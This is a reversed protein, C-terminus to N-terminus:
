DKKIVVEDGENLGGLIEISGDMSKVGREIKVDLIEDGAKRRVYYGDDRKEIAFDPISLVNEHRLTEIRLSSSLGSKIRPDATDFSIKVKYNVIGDIITEAPEIVVVKGSLRDGGFADIAIEVKDQLKLKGIDSEPVNAEILLLGDSIVSFASLSPQITQGAVISRKSVVGAFPSVLSYKKLQVNYSQLIAQQSQVKAKQSLVQADIERIKAEKAAIEEVSAGAKSRNLDSSSVDVTAQLSRLSDLKSNISSISASITTRATDVKSKYEAIQTSSLGSSGVIADMVKSLLDRIIYVESRTKELLLIHQDSKLSASDIKAIDSKYSFIRNLAQQALVRGDETDTKIQTNPVTFGLRISTQDNNNLFITDLNNRLVGDAKIGTDDILDATGQMSNRLDAQAKNLNAIKIDIDEQRTGNKLDNLEIIATERIALQQALGAEATLVDARAQSIKAQLEGSDLIALVQGEKVTSGIDALVKVVRGSQESLVDVTDSAIIKGSIVVDQYVDGRKVTVSELKEGGIGSFSIITVLAVVVLVVVIVVKKTIFKSFM